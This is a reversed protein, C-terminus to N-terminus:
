TNSAVNANMRASEILGAAIALTMWMAFSLDVGALANRQAYWWLAAEIVAATALAGIRIWGRTRVAIGLPVCATAAWMTARTDYDFTPTRLRPVTLAAAAAVGVALVAPLSVALVPRQRFVFLVAGTLLLGEIVFAIMSPSHNVFAVFGAAAVFVLLPPQPGPRDRNARLLWIGVFAVAMAESVNVPRITVDSEFSRGFPTLLAVSLLGYYPSALTIAAVFVVLGQLVRSSSSTLVDYAYWLPFAALLIRVPALRWFWPTGGGERM